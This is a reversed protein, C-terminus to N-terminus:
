PSAPFWLEGKFTFKKFARKKRLEIQEATLGEDAM